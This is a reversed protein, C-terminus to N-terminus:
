RQALRDIRQDLRDLDDRLARLELALERQRWGPVLSRQEEALFEAVSGALRGGADRLGSQLTRATGVARHAAVDGVVRSLDEEIDWRLHRALQAIAQALDADGSIRLHKLAASERDTESGFAASAILPAIAAWPLALTVDASEARISSSGLLGTELVVFDLATSGITFRALRGAHPVLTQRAWVESALLHNLAAAFASQAGRAVSDRADQFSPLSPLPAPGAM